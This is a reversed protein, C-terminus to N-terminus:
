NANSKSLKVYFLSLTVPTFPPLFAIFGHKLAPEDIYRESCSDDDSLVFVYKACQPENESDTTAVAM